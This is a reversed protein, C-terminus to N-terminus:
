SISQTVDLTFTIVGEAVTTVRGASERVQIDWSFTTDDTLGMTDNPDITIQVVGNTAPGVVVIGSSLTSLQFGPPVLDLSSLDTKFTAWVTAGTLNFPSGDGKVITCTIDTTDGRKVTGLDQSVLAM